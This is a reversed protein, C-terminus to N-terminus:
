FARTVSLLSQSNQLHHFPTSPLRKVLSIMQRVYKNMYSEIFNCCNKLFLIKQHLLQQFNVLFLFFQNSYRIIKIIHVKLVPFAQIKLTIKIRIGNMKNHETLFLSNPNVTITSDSFIQQGYCTIQLGDKISISFSFFIQM